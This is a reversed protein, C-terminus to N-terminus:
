WLLINKKNQVSNLINKMWVVAFIKMIMANVIVNRCLKAICNVNEILNKSNKENRKQELFVNWLLCQHIEPINNNEGWKQM